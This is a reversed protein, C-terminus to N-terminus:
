GKTVWKYPSFAIAVDAGYPTRNCIKWNDAAASRQFGCLTALGFALVLIATRM